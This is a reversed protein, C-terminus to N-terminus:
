RRRPDGHAEAPVHAILRDVPVFGFDRSDVSAATNDGLVVAAGEPVVGRVGLARAVGPPVPDGPLAALRKLLWAGGSVPGPEPWRWDGPCEPKVLVVVDGTRLEGPGTVRRAIVVQGPRLAPAMSEGAVTVRLRSRRVRVGALVLGGLVLGTVAVVATAVWVTM